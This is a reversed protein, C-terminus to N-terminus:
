HRKPPPGPDSTSRRRKPELWEDLSSEEYFVLRGIKLFEPGEGTVRYRELTRRSLRVHHAAEATTLLPRTERVPVPAAHPGQLRDVTSRRM